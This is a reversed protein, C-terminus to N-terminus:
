AKKKTARKRKPAPGRDRRAQLLEASREPTIEEVSDGARLSANTEGDTVYPGFRGEKLVVPKGSVPDNGLEKLPPAAAARGRAKPEALKALAEDLTITFLQQEDELSRSEKGQKVYPGYRGNAALVEEGNSEGLSRPLSLLKLAEELTVTEPSMTKFLSATRPKQDGELVETVYPGYRGARLAITTGTEPDAGLEHEQNGQALIEEAREPTLEDPAIDPPLTQRETGRELYPGYRGVRVVIDSGPLEVTNIERADIEALRGEVLEKLGVNGDQGFYFRQLWATRAEDGSAIEDLDDEMRATFEYDVLSPFHRELLNVVAFALFEPVLAQGQKRVYGRDLITGMIAAYTSPRGIGREELSKVLSAETFRPPPTTSHGEPELATESLADGQKIQPLLKEEAEGSPEDQGEEYALLFGRFTIVTGATSFEVNQKDSSQAGIRVSVTQGRADAMQSAVTRKWILDYVNFEDASLERKVEDPTRFRDGAPRIAEHAEQANKVKRTYQRPADPVSEPGYLESAQARAATLASESLTTSDTRMYTIYGNEYLRQAVRMTQQSSLRLKRSAEQQLTSTMFPAAPRRTYPKEEVSSVRYAVGELAKALDRAQPETLQVVDANRLKGDQGFDRGLAVRHGDVSTLRATFAGPDFTAVIDWYDAAVFRMREREREVVLRTAVSQVRGASLGQMIKRWLVPSVEYGYLRDLIRRTEQADVLRDDIERTEGLAREIAPRTIEHFVMRKVPVKPDLVERLHWAIAEGERDEDTALLLEDANKLKAKLDSVVKKKRSDVVYLPEFDKDVNVGLRAWAEGKLNAPIEAANNPLDRIHGISSEVVYDSGLYGAITKAKAPSEVIVLKKGTSVAMERAVM